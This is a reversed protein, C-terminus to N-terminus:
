AVRLRERFAQYDKRDPRMCAALAAHKRAEARRGSNELSRGLCFHAYDNVPYRELVAAFEEAAQAFRASRFYARGLAERISSKDPELDRARELPVSAAMFDGKELLDSGKQFLEYAGESSM